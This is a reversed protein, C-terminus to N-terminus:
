EPTVLGRLTPFPSVDLMEPLTELTFVRGDTDRLVPGLTDNVRNWGIGSLLAFVPVGGLRTGEARLRQFRAAKDRATGGDNAGKCEIVAKLSNSKDFVVFDPAPRVTLQFRAEIDGQNHSGTRIYPVGADRLLAENADELLDGRLTSTADLVQRFMGGYHRQHLLRQYPVGDTALGRVSAWGDRTDFKDQKSHLGRPPEAFLERRVLADITAAVVAAQEATLPTGSREASDVKGGAIAAAPMDLRAAIIAAAEAFENRVLGTITRLVLLTRADALLVGRLEDASVKTFGDTAAVTATYVEDFYSDDYFPADHVYAFDPTLHPVYLARAIDAYIRQHEQTGHREPIRRIENVRKDWTDAAAVAAVTDDIATM